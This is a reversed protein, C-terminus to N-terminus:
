LREVPEKIELGKVINRTQEIGSIFKQKIVKLSGEVRQTLLNQLYFLILGIFM